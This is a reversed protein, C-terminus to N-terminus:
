NCVDVALVAAAAAVAVCQSVRPRANSISKLDAEAKINRKKEKTQPM